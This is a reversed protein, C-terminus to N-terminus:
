LTIRKELQMLLDLDIKSEPLALKLGLCRAKNHVSANSRGLVECLEEISLDQGVKPYFKKLIEIEKDTWPRRM